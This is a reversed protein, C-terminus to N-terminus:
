EACGKTSTTSGQAAAYKARQIARNTISAREGNLRVWVAKAEDARDLTEREEDTLYERWAWKPQKREFAM